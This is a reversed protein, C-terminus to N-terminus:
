DPSRALCRRIFGAARERVIEPQDRHPSHRCNPLMLTEVPGSCREAVSDVQLMTGYEDDEGQVVLVPCAIAPLCEEINWRRFDPDLWIRNWGLFTKAGDLHHKAMRAALTSDVYARAAKAISAITLDEVFVHPAELILSRVPWRGAAAHILAISAGDSHGVLIVDDLGLKERLEPLSHLAEEHMYTVAREGTLVASGGYGYRSYM